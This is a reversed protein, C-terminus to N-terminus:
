KPIEFKNVKKGTSSNEDIGEEKTNGSEDSKNLHYFRQM